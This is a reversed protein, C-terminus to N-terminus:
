LIVELPETSKWRLGDIAAYKEFGIMEIGHESLVPIAIRKTRAESANGLADSFKKLQEITISM